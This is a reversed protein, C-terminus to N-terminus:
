VSGKMLNSEPFEIYRNANRTGKIFGYDSSSLHLSTEKSFNIFSNRNMLKNYSPCVALM